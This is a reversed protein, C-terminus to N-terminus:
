HSEIQYQTPMFDLDNALDFAGALLQFKTKTYYLSPVGITPSQVGSISASLTSFNGDAVAITGEAFAGEYDSYLRWAALQQKALPALPHFWSYSTGFETLTFTLCSNLTGTTTSAVYISQLFGLSFVDDTARYKEVERRLVSADFTALDGSMVTLPILDGGPTVASKLQGWGINLSSVPAGPVYYFIDDVNITSRAKYSGANAQATLLIVGFGLKVASSFM